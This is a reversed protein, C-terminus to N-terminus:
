FQPIIMHIDHIDTIYTPYESVFKVKYYIQHFFITDTNFLLM